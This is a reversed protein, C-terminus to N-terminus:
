CWDKEEKDRLTGRGTPSPASNVGLRFHYGNPVGGTASQGTPTARSLPRGSAHGGVPEGERHSALERDPSLNPDSGIRTALIPADNHAGLLREHESIGRTGPRPQHGTTLATSPLTTPTKYAVGPRPTLPTQPLQRRSRGATTTSPASPLPGSKLAGSSLQRFYQEPGEGPSTTCSPGASRTHPPERSGYRECSYYRQKEGASSHHRREVPRSRERDRARDRLEREAPVEQPFSGPTDAQDM